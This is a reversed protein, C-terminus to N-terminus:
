ANRHSGNFYAYCWNEGDFIFYTFVGARGIEIKTQLSGNSYMKGTGYGGSSDYEIYVNSSVKSYILLTQGVVPGAPLKLTIGGKTVIVICDSSSIQGSYNMIRLNPAIVGRIAGNTQIATPTGTFGKAIVNIALAPSDKKSQESYIYQVPEYQTSYTYNTPLNMNNNSGKCVTRAAMGFWVANFHNVSSQYSFETCSTGVRFYATDLSGGRIFLPCYQIGSVVTAGNYETGKAQMIDGWNDDKKISWIGIKSDGTVNLKTATIEQANIGKAVVDGANIFKANLKGNQFMAAEDYGESPNAKPTKVQVKNGYLTVQDSTIEIGAKKLSAKDVLDSKRETWETMTAGIELKPQTVYVTSASTSNNGTHRIIVEKPTAYGDNPRWHVWYRTWQRSLIFVINGDGKSDWAGGNGETFINCSNEIDGSWMYCVVRADDVDAKAVFSFIYDNGNVLYTSGFRWRLVEKYDSHTANAKMINKICASDTGYGNQIVTDYTEILTGSKDLTRANDLLNGGVYDYDQESLTWGNYNEGEELMPKCIYGGVFSYSRAMAFINIEVYEYQAAPPVSVKVTFLEWKDAESAAFTTSYGTPGAYGAPRSTDIKSGQYLVEAVFKIDNPTHTKAYFSLVYNKGKELKINGQLSTGRWSFGSLYYWDTGRQKTRCHICNVGNIGSNKEIQELPYGDYYGGDMYVFGDGYKRCASGVLMNRRGVSKESVSLSIERATQIISSKWEKLENGTPLGDLKGSMDNVKGSIESYQSTLTKNNSYVHAVFKTINVQFKVYAYHLGGHEDTIQVQAYGNQAPMTIGDVTVNTINQIIVMNKKQGPGPTCNLHHNNTLSFGCNNTVDQGNRYCKIEASQKPTLLKGEDNTDFIVVEPIIQYEFESGITYNGIALQEDGDKQKLIIDITKASPFALLDIYSDSMVDSDKYALYEGNIYVNCTLTNNWKSILHTINTKEQIKHVYIYVKKEQLLFDVTYTVPSVGAVGPDGKEGKDGQEGKIKSWTYKTVNTSDKQEYDTYQGIWSGPTEGDNVTLTQGGDNSYKIHLYSTRGDAGNKGPIGNTGDKGQLGEFRSWTYVNPDTSDNPLFDVYTGIYTNPTETMQAATTPNAESSYKIHFYTTKGDKGPTGPIGQEGTEGQLGRLGQEGQEGKDGKDGKEGKDGDKLVPIDMTALLVDGRHKTGDATVSLTYCDLTFYAPLNQAAADNTQLDTRGTYPSDIKIDQCSSEWWCEDLVDKTDGMVKYCCVSVKATGNEVNDGYLRGSSGVRFMGNTEINYFVTIPSFPKEPDETFWMFNNANFKVQEPSIVCTCTKWQYPSIIEMGASDKKGTSYLAGLNHYMTIAPANDTANDETSTSIKILNGRSKWCIQDGVQVIVDGEAPADQAIGSEYGYFYRNAILNGGEDTEKDELKMLIGAMSGMSEAASVEIGYDGFVLMNTGDATVLKNAYTPVISESGLFKEKNSLVVYDYLKGDDLIEQGVGVVLRWYYRNQLKENKGAKVNFTQCLAMMGIRWWNMTRTTGDDACAYCKYGICNGDADFIVSVKALTSGANSFITTGGSYSIKRIEASSAFFKQRVVINDLYMHSKGDDGMYLDFGQAGIIVRDSPTSAADHIRDVVVDSLSAGGNKDIYHKGSEGIALGQLFKQVKEFTITGHAIDDTLKSLYMKDTISANFGNTNSGGVMSSLSKVTEGKVADIIQKTDSKTVELSNVLEIEVESLEDNDVKVSYNSVFVEHSILNGDNDSDGQIQISLKANENLKSAFEPNEQLFIRSFKVPYNFQDTNNESMHKVLADDLRKEAATVLVKPPKIGTIVFLDGKQPKFGASANPMLIGLTSTDKQVAIWLEKQTSDQNLKDEYADSANAFIYDNKDTNVQKLNGNEDVSVCNYYKSNDASPQKYIVFSCAPCGNSKILNIKASESALAHAFLDFGFDGNFKHLKMYFYSHIYNGNSDKVDSDEKDFAVDAIEGFLQGEANVIGNITPKIGDFTVTGQHPNGKKYLNAFEYYGSGSPLKHTNNLAYYFREAGKTNRYVSPMLVSSPAIWVRDTVIVKVANDETGTYVKNFGYRDGDKVFQYDYEICNAEGIGSVNIGADSYPIYKDGNRWEYESKLEYLFEISGSFAVNWSDAGYFDNIGASNKYVKCKYSFESEISLTFDGDEEFTYTAVSGFSMKNSITKYLEKGKFIYISKVANGVNTIYDKRSVSSNLEYSFNLNTLDVSQGKIASIPISFSFRCTVTPNSQNDAQTLNSPTTFRDFTHSSVDVSGNYSKGEKSKYLILTDNYRSDKLFKSLEVSVKDKSINETNFVAEGFEDDNPYYYPLNDSSGYGTIMDVIKYNANEKSVSILADSSGYKIPTDTLDHQVKGVHCVNGVWYYDLEFTTNILQLVDTLYQDEFSVEKVEDTGYGEDVVVYYGKYEETPRYLGCYAMSSNIRAVFEHITGGFTFKTQNSRYRDKNQTDVDDVVVDFFLTNDLLERRSTFTIECKWMRSSNDKTSNPTYSAFFRDGNYEVFEEKKWQLPESSYITTTLTPAGGMRKADYTYSSIIAPNAESPFLGIIENGTNEDYTLKQIYLSEAKM